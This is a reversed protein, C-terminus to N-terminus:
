AGPGAGPNTRKSNQPLFAAAVGVITGPIVTIAILWWLSPKPGALLAIALCTITPTIALLAILTSRKSM